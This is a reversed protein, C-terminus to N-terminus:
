TKVVLSFRIKWRCGSSVGESSDHMGKGIVGIVVDCINELRLNAVVM